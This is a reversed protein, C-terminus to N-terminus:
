EIAVDDPVDEAKVAYIPAGPREDDEVASIDDEDFWKEQARGDAAKYHVLYQNSHSVSEARSKIHGMEGSISLEIFQNLGFKFESM